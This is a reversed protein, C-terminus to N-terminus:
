LIFIGSFFGFIYLLIKVTNKPYIKSGIIIEKGNDDVIKADGLDMQSKELEIDFENEKIFKETNNFVDKERSDIVLKM